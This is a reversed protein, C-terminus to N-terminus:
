YTFPDSISLITLFAFFNGAKSLIMFRLVVPLGNRTKEVATIARFQVWLTGSELWVM